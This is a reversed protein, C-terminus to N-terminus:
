ILHSSASRDVRRRIMRHLARAAVSFWNASNLPCLCVLMDGGAHGPNIDVFFQVHPNKSPNEDVPAAHSRLRKLGSRTVVGTEPQWATGYKERALRDILAQERPPTARDLRPWFESFNRPLLLYSKYSFTDFFWYIPRFPFRARARLFSRLGLRQILNLGRYREDLLVHSTFIVALERAEFRVPYVDIAAMGILAGDDDSRFLAIHRHQGLKAEAHDRTTEYFADTLRWLETWETLTLTSTPRVTITASSM